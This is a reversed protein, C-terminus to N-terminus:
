RLQPFSFRFVVSADAMESPTLASLRGDATMRHTECLELTVDGRTDPAVAKGPIFVDLVGGIRDARLPPLRTRLDARGALADDVERIVILPAFPRSSTANTVPNYQQGGVFVRVEGLGPPVPASPRNEVFFVFHFGGGDWRAAEASMAARYEEVSLRAASLLTVRLGKQVDPTRAVVPMEALVAAILVFAWVLHM